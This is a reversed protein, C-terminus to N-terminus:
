SPPQPAATTHDTWQTGDHWRLDPRGLPDPYWGPANPTRAAIVSPPTSSIASVGNPDGDIFLKGAIGPVHEVLARLSTRWHGVPGGVEFYWNETTTTEITLLTFSKRAALGLVGFVAIAGVSAKTRGPDDFSVQRVQDWAFGTYQKGFLFWVGDPHIRVVCKRGDAARADVDMVLDNGLLRRADVRLREREVLPM